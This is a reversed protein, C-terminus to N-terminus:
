FKFGIVMIDDTQPMIGQWSEVINTLFNSQEDFPLDASQLITQKFRAASFKKQRPGGFQDKIGDSFLYFLRNPEYPIYTTKFESSDNEGISYRHAKLDILSNNVIYFADNKAGAYYVNNNILNLAIISADMGDRINDEKLNLQHYFLHNLRTLIEGPLYLNEEYVIKNLLSTGVISLM